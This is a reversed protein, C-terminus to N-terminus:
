KVKKKKCIHLIEEYKIYQVYLVTGRSGRLLGVSAHCQLHCSESNGVSNTTIQLPAPKSCPVATNCDPESCNLRRARMWM